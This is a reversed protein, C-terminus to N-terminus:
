YDVCNVFINLVDTSTLATAFTAQLTDGSALYIFPNGNADVPLGPWNAPSMLNKAPTANAYGDSSASTVAVGGYGVTANFIQVTVLHTASADNNTEFMGFCKSGNVGATYLTKYTGAVDTGQLFQVVGRKVAQATVVSNPTVAAPAPLAGGLALLGALALALLRSTFGM